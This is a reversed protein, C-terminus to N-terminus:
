SQDDIEVKLPENTYGRLAYTGDEDQEIYLTAITADESDNFDVKGFDNESERHREEWVKPEARKGTDYPTLSARRAALAAMERQYRTTM